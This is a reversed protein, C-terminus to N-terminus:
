REVARVLVSTASLSAEVWVDAGRELPVSSRAAFKTRQGGLRLLVEGYGDVPIGTVVTGSSGVLDDGRPAVSSRDRMLARSFRWAAWGAGTGAVAGVGTAALPGLGTSGLTIAGAFGLMSTFGAVVPLSLLGDVGASIGGLVGGLVGELAGELLGDLILSLLLLVLGVIGLGLFWAM